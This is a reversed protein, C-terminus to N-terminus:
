TEEDQERILVKSGIKGEDLTATERSEDAGVFSERKRQENEQEAM